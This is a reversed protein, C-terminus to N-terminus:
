WKTMEKALERKHPDEAVKDEVVRISTKMKMKILIEHEGEITKDAVEEEKIMRMMLAVKDSSKSAIVM